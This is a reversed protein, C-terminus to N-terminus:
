RHDPFPVTNSMPQEILVGGIDRSREALDTAASSIPPAEEEDEEIDEKIDNALDLSTTPGAHVRRQIGEM